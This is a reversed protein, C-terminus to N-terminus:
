SCSARRASAPKRHARQATPLTGPAIPEARLEITTGAYVGGSRELAAVPPLINHEVLLNPKKETMVVTGTEIPANPFKVNKL